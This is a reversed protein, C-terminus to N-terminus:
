ANDRHALGIGDAAPHQEPAAYTGFIRDIAALVIAFNVAQGARAHHARHVDPTALLRNLGDFRLELNAHQLVVFAGTVNIVLLVTELQAGLVLMPVSHAAAVWLYNIPHLRPGNLAYMRHPEHHTRHMRWWFGPRHSYRHMPYRLLEGVAIGLVVQAALPWAVPWWTHLPAAVDGLISVLTTTAIIVAVDVARNLFLLLADLGDPRRNWARHLPFIRELVLVILVAVLMPAGSALPRPLDHQLLHWTGFAVGTVVIPLVFWTAFRPRTTTM